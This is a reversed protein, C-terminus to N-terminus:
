IYMYCNISNILELINSNGVYGYEIITSNYCKPDQLDTELLQVVSLRFIINVYHKYFM